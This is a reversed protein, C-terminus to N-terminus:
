PPIVPITVRRRLVSVHWSMMLICWGRKVMLTTQIMSTMVLSDNGEEFSLERFSEVISRQSPTYVEIDVSMRHRRPIETDM